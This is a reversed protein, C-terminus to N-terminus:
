SRDPSFVLRAYGAYSLTMAVASAVVLAALPWLGPFALLLGAYVAYNLLAVAVAVAVYRLGEEVVRRHSPGFTVIRNVMWTAGIACAVSVLRATFPDLGVGQTLLLLIAADVGFGLGGALAFAALRRRM